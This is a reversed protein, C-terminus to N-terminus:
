SSAWLVLQKLCALKGNRGCGKHLPIIIIIIVSAHSACAHKDSNYHTAIATSSYVYVKYAHADNM